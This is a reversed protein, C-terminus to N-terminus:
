NLHQRGQENELARRTIQRFMRATRAYLPQLEPHQDVLHRTRGIDKIAEDLFDAARDSLLEGRDIREKIDLADPLLHAEFHRLMVTLVADDRNLETM